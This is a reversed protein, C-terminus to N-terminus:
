VPRGRVGWAGGLAAFGAALAAAVLFLPSFAGSLTTLLIAVLGTALGALLAERTGAPKGFRGVLFGGALAALALPVAGLLVPVAWPVHDEPAGSRVRVVIAEVVYALPLWAAFIMVMGFGVWHWPPRQAEQEQPAGDSKLVTLRRKTDAM